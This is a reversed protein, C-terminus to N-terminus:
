LATLLLDIVLSAKVFAIPFATCLGIRKGAIGANTIFVSNPSAGQAM